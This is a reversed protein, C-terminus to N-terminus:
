RSEEFFRRCSAFGDDAVICDDVDDSANANLGDLRGINRVSFLLSRLLIV